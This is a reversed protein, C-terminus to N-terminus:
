PDLKEDAGIWAELPKDINQISVRADDALGSNSFNSVVARYAKLAASKNGNLDHIYGVMFQAQDAYRSKPFRDILEEYTKIATDSKGQAQYVRAVAQLAVDARPDEPYGELFATLHVTAEDYTKVDHTAREGKTFLEDASQKSCGAAVLILALLGVRYIGCIRNNVVDGISM